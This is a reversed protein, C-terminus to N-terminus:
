KKIWENLLNKIFANSRKGFSKEESLENIFESSVSEQLKGGSINKLEKISITKFM